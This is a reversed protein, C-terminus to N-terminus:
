PLPEARSLAETPQALHSLGALLFAAGILGQVVWLSIQLGKGRKAAPATSSAQTAETTAM